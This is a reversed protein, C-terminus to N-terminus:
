AVPLDYERILQPMARKTNEVLNMIAKNRNRQKILSNVMIGNKCLEFTCDRYTRSFAYIKEDSYLLFFDIMKKGCRFDEEAIMIVSNTVRKKAM